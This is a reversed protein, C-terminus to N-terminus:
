RNRRGDRIADGPLWSVDPRARDLAPYTDMPGLWRDWAARIRAEERARRRAARRRRTAIFVALALVALSVMSFTVIEVVALVEHIMAAIERHGAAAFLVLVILAVVAGWQAPGNSHGHRVQIELRGM